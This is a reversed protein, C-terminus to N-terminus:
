NWDKCTKSVSYVTDAIRELDKLTDMYYMSSQAKFNGKELNELYDARVHTYFSNIRSELAKAAEIEQLLTVRTGNHVLLLNMQLFAKRVLDAMELINNRQLPTFYANQQRRKELYRATSLVIDAASELHNSISLIARMNRSLDTSVQHKSLQALYEAVQVDIEDALNEIRQINELHQMMRTEEVETIMLPLLEYGKKVQAGLRAIEKRAEAASFESADLFGMGIFELHYSQDGMTKSPVWRTITHTVFPMLAIALLGNAVNFSTHFISLAVPMLRPDTAVHGGMLEFTLFDMLHVAPAFLLLAWLVGMVNIFTHARATRKAHVNGVLAALNATVTTGINAGLVIAMGLPLSVWGSFALVQTLAIAASSTQVIVSIVIGFLVFLLVIGMKGLFAAEDYRFNKFFELLEPREKLDPITQELLSFGLILLAFGLLMEGLFRLMDRKFFMLPVALGFLPLALKVLPFKTVGFASVLWATVTTGINSGIILSVSQTLNVMGSNAFSVILVTAASSTQLLLTLLLGSLVGWGVNHTLANLLQRM